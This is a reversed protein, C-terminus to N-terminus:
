AGTRALFALIEPLATRDQVFFAHGGEYVHLEAGPVRSAIGESNAMPAIPDFRGCGVFTPSTVAGLRDWVDHGRRAELQARRGSAVLPDDDDRRGLLDVLARDGPHSGLWAQDFRTDILTRRVEARRDPALEELEHLPYSSGGAGGPSTCLLALREVRGPATVALEQAVMGGFSVGVVRARDWGVADMLGLADAACRDMGYPGPAPSSSGLGRQDFALLTVDRGFLSLLPRSADITQGSGNLFLLRPGTGTVEFSLDVDDVRAIPM